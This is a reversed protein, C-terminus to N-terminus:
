YFFWANMCCLSSSQKTEVVYLLEKETLVVAGDNVEQKFLINKASDQKNKKVFLLM